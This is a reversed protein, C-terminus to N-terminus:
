DGQLMTWVLFTGILIFGCAASVAALGFRPLTSNHVLLAVTVLLIFSFLSFVNFPTVISKVM